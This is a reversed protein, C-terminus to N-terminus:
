CRLLSVATEGIVATLWCCSGSSFLTFINMHTSTMGYPGFLTYKGHDIIISEGFEIPGQHAFAALSRMAAFDAGSPTTDGSPHNHLTYVKAAGLQLARNFTESVFRGQEEGNKGAYIAAANPIQSSVGTNLVVKGNEDVFFYRMTEFRSDRFVSAAVALENVGKFTRGVFDVGGNYILERTFADFVTQVKNTNLLGALDMELQIEKFGNIAEVAPAADAKSVGFREVIENVSTEGSPINIDSSRANTEDADGTQSIPAHLTGSTSTKNQREASYSYVFVGDDKEKINISVTLICLSGGYIRCSM